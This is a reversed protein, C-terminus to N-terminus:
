PKAYTKVNKLSRPSKSKGIGLLRKKDTGTMNVVVLITLREKSLKGGSCKEGKFKSTRNPSMRCFLGMEDANYIQKDTHGDGWVNTLWNTTVDRDVSASEGSIKGLTINHRSRFRQGLCGLCVLNEM